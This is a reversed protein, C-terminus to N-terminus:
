ISEFLKYLTPNKIAGSTEPNTVGSHVDATTRFYFEMFSQSHSGLCPLSTTEVSRKTGGRDSSKAFIAEASIFAADLIIM